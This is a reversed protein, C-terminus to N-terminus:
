TSSLPHSSRSAAQTGPPQTDCGTRRARSPAQAGRYPRRGGVPCEGRRLRREAETGAPRDRRARCPKSCTGWGRCRMSRSRTRTASSTSGLIESRFDQWVHCPMAEFTDPNNLKRRWRSSPRRVEPAPRAPPYRTEGGGSSSPAPSDPSRRKKRSSARRSRSMPQKDGGM